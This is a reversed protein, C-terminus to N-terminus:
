EISGSSANKRKSTVLVTGAAEAALFTGTGFCAFCSISNHMTGQNVLSERTGPKLLGQSSRIARLEVQWELGDMYLHLRIVQIEQWTRGDHHTPSRSRKRCPRAIETSNPLSYYFTANVEWTM